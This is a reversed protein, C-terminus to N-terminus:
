LKAELYTDIFISIAILPYVEALKKSHMLNIILYKILKPPFHFNLSTSGVANNNSLTIIMPILM